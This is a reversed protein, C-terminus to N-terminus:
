DGRIQKQIEKTYKEFLAEPDDNGTIKGSANPSSVNAATSKRKQREAEIKRAQETNANDETPTAPTAEVKAALEPHLAVMDRAYKEFAHAVDDASGSEALARIGDSQNAKWNAFSESRFVDPANPYMELLRKAEMEQYAAVEQERLLTLTEREKTNMDQTAHNQATIIAKAIAEALDEDSERVGKLLEDIEPKLKTAPQSSPSAQKTALEELKKDLERIRKQVYPVRGAQSRLSHNEKNLKEIQEKLKALEEDGESASTEKKDKDVNDDAPKDLPSKEEDEVKDDPTSESNPTEEAESKEPQDPLVQEKNEDEVPALEETLESLKNSDNDQIAKSIENFLKNSDKESLEESM